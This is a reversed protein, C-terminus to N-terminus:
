GHVFAYRVVQSGKLGVLFVRHPGPGSFAERLRRLGRCEFGNCTTSRMHRPLSCGNEGHYVCSDECTSEQVRSLFGALVKPAQLEPHEDRYRLITEVDLYARDGGRVCCYGQCTACADELIPPPKSDADAPVAPTGDGQRGGPSGNRKEQAEAILQVLHDGLAARREPPLCTVPREAAPVVAPVFREPGDIGLLGAAQERLLRMQKEFEKQERRQREEREKRLARQQRRHEARCKWFDCTQFLRAEGDTIKRECIACRGKGPLVVARKTREPLVIGLDCGRLSGSPDAVRTQSESSPM